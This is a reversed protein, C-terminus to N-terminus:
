KKLQLILIASVIMVIGLLQLPVMAEGLVFFALIVTFPLEATIVVSSKDAGISRIGLNLLAMPAVQFISSFCVLALIFPEEIHPPHFFIRFNIVYLIATAFIYMYFLLTETKIDRLKLDAFLNYFAYSIGACVGFLIGTLSIAGDHFPFINLVLFAGIFSIAVAIRNPLGIKKIGTFIFFLCVFVPCLYLLMSAVGADIREMALYLLISTGAAGIIGQLAVKGLQIKPCHFLSADRKSLLFIALIITTCSYQILLLDFAAMGSKLIFKGLIVQIAYCLASGLAFGYGLKPHQTINM